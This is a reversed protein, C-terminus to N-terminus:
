VFDLGKDIREPNEQDYAKQYREEQESRFLISWRCLYDAVLTTWLFIMRGNLCARRYYISTVVHTYRDSESCGPNTHDWKKRTGRPSLPLDHGIHDRLPADHTLPLANKEYLLHLYISSIIKQHSHLVNERIAM